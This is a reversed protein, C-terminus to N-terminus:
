AALAGFNISDGNVVNIAAFVHHDMMVGGTVINFLAHETIALGSTYPITGVSKYIYVSAGETQSGTVRSEGDTTEIDTDTQDAASVGVGSDHFKFDGWASTETQLQDVMFEVFDDTVELTSVLGYNVVSGDARLHRAHATGLMHNMKLAKALAHRWLGPYVNHFNKVKWVLGPGPERIVRIGLNGKMGLESQM